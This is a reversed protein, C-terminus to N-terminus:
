AEHRLTNDKSASNVDHRKHLTTRILIVLHEAGLFLFAHYLGTNKDHFPTGDLMGM